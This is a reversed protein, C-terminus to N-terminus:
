GAGASLHSDQLAPSMQVSRLLHAAGYIVSRLPDPAVRVDLHTAQSILEAMGRLCAGGGTLCIGDEIVECAAIPPLDKLVASIRELITRVIPAMVAHVEDENVAVTAEDGDTGTGLGLIMRHSGNGHQVGALRMLREAENPHLQVGHRHTVMAAVAARLDSCGSRVAAAEIIRGSRIVAIDTVGSGIDVIMSAFRSTPDLGAGLAAALPEPSVALVSAGARHATEVLAARELESADSPTCFLARPRALYFRRARRILPVLLAAAAEVDVVVGARVPASPLGRSPSKRDGAERDMRHRSIWRPSDPSVTPEEVVVGKGGAYLRTNATGLDIALDPGALIGRLGAIARM